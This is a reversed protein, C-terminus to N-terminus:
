LLGKVSGSLLSHRCPQRSGTDVITAYQDLDHGPGPGFIGCNRGSNTLVQPSEESGERGCERRKRHDRARPDGLAIGAPQNREISVARAAAPKRAATGQARVDVACFKSVREADFECFSFGGVLPSESWM